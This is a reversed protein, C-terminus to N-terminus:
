GGRPGQATKAGTNYRSTSWGIHGFRYVTPALILTDFVRLIFYLFPFTFYRSRGQIQIMSRFNPENGCADNAKNVNRARSLFVCQCGYFM